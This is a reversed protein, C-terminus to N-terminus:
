QMEVEIKPYERARKGPLYGHHMYGEFKPVMVRVVFVPFEPPTLDTVVVREIGASRIRGIMTALDAEFCDGTESRRLAAPDSNAQEQQIAQVARSFDTRSRVFASRFIDDRSGAIFNLRAQLAETVARLIAIEPDLHTGSGRVVGVGRDDQSYVLASYTPCDTDATCDYVVVKAGARDCKDLVSAVLPYTRLQEEALIPIRHNRTLAAHYHCAIADREICEYLGSAIAELFSNGAGLGNSSVQFAGMSSILTRNRSMGVLTLPIAVECQGILDWGLHWHIPWDASFMNWRTMPFESMRPVPYRETVENFSARFSPPSATEAAHLEFAEMAGSVNAQDITLGKGSSCAITIANPRIALTTPVGINDLGTVDAIRTVGAGRLYPQVEAFTERPDRTRHTGSHFGKFSTYPKGRFYVPPQGEVQRPQGDTGAQIPM